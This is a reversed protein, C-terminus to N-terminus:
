TRTKTLDETRRGHFIINVHTPIHQFTNMESLENMHILKIGRTEVFYM